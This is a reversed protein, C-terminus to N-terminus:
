VHQTVCGFGNLTKIISTSLYDAFKKLIKVKQIKWHSLTKTFDTEVPRPKFGRRTKKLILCLIHHSMDNQTFSRFCFGRTMPYM